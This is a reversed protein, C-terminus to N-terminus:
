KESDIVSKTVSYPTGELTDNLHDITEDGIYEATKKKLDVKVNKVLRSLSEEVKKACGECKMGEVKVTHKEM